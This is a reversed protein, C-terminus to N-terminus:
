GSAVEVVKAGHSAENKAWGDVQAQAVELTGHVERASVIEHGLEPCCVTVECGAPWRESGEPADCLVIGMERAWTTVYVKRPESMSTNQESWREFCGLIANIERNKRM